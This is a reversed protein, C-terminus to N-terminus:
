GLLAGLHILIREYIWISVAISVLIEVLTM